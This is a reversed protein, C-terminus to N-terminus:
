DFIKLGVAMEKIISGIAGHRLELYNAVLVM